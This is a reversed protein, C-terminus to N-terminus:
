TRADARAIIGKIMAGQKETLYSRTGFFEGVSTIIKREDTTMEGKKQKAKELLEAAEQRGIRQSEPSRLPEGMVKRECYYSARSRFFMIQKPSPIRGGEVQQAISQLV